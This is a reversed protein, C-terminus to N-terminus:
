FYTFVREQGEMRGDMQWVVTTSINGFCVLDNIRHNLGKLIKEKSM